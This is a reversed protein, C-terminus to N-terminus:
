LMQSKFLKVRFHAYRGFIWHFKVQIIGFWGVVVEVSEGFVMEYSVTEENEDFVQICKLKSLKTYSKLMTKLFVIETPEFIIWITIYLNCLGKQQM